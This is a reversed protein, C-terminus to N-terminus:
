HLLSTGAGQKDKGFDLPLLFSQRLFLLFAYSKPCITDSPSLQVAGYEMKKSGLVGLRGSLDAFCYGVVRQEFVGAGGRNVLTDSIQLLM